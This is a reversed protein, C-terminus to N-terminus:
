NGKEASLASGKDTQIIPKDPIETFDQIFKKGNIVPQGLFSSGFRGCRMCHLKFLGYGYETEPPNHKNWWKHGIFFCILRFKKNM